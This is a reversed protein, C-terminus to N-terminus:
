AGGWGKDESIGGFFLMIAIYMKAIIDGFFLETFSVNSLEFIVRGDSFIDRNLIMAWLNFKFNCFINNLSFEKTRARM